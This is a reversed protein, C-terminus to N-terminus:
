AKYPQKTQSISPRYQLTAEVKNSKKDTLKDDEGM